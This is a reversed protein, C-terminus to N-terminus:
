PFVFSAGILRACHIVVFFRQLVNPLSPYNERLWAGSSYLHFHRHPTCIDLFYTTRFNTFTDNIRVQRVFSNRCVGVLDM